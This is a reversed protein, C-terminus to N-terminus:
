ASRRFGADHQDEDPDMDLAFGGGGSIPKRARAKPSALPSRIAQAGQEARKRLQAVPHGVPLSAPPPTTAVSEDIRFFAVTAKLQEAQTALEESTSSVEESAATNRQTVKDLQQIAQNIQMAGVDQERCAATIEEVLSATRKIDPVLKELMSGADRATKVTEASLTGIEAAAAQSREALKRVESAVVAFGRGHEGARAAEVAANLALLDTQRAIEQVVTIKSAITQMAEVAKGVAFGSAEADQASRRAITETQSANDANQKVNAAMEEMSASAEETASAQETSGQSLQEASASLEQSGVSVNQAARVTEGVIARLKKLMSQLARQLDGLEDNSRVVVDQTLDGSAVTQTLRLAAGISRTISVAIWIALLLGVLAAGAVVGVLILRTEEYAKQTETVFGNAVQIEVEKMKALQALMADGADKVSGNIILDGAKADGNVSALRIIEKDSELLAKLDSRLADVAAKNSAESPDVLADLAANVRGLAADYDKQLAAVSSDDTALVIGIRDLQLTEVNLRLNALQERLNGQESKALSEYDSVVRSVLPGGRTSSLDIAKTQSNLLTLDWAKNAATVYASWGDDLSKRSAERVDAPLKDVYQPMVKEFDARFDDFSKRATARGADTSDMLARNLVRAANIMDTQMQGIRIVQNFPRAAFQQMQENTSSLSSVGLVGTAGLCAILSGFALGLKTKITLRM